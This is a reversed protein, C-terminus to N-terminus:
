KHAGEQPTRIEYLTLNHSTCSQLEVCGAASDERGSAATLGGHRVRVAGSVLACPAPTGV